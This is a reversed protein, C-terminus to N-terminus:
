SKFIKSLPHNPSQRTGYQRSTYATFANFLSATYHAHPALEIPGYLIFDIDFAAPYALGAAVCEDIIRKELQRGKAWPDIMYGSYCGAPYGFENKVQLAAKVAPGIDPTALSCTDVLIKEMGTEQAINVLGKKENSGRLMDLRGEITPNTPNFAFIIGTKVKSEKLTDIEQQTTKWNISNYIARDGLGTQSVYKVADVLTSSNASDILFPADTTTSVFDIYTEMAEPTDFVVDLIMPNGTREAVEETRKILAEARTKDFEGRLPDNVIKHGDYFITGIMATPNEGSLGGIKVNAISYTNREVNLKGEITEM